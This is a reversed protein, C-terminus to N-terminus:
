AQVRSMEGLLADNLLSSAVPLKATLAGPLQGQVAILLKVHSLTVAPLAPVPVPM